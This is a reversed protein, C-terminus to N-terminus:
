AIEAEFPLILLFAATYKSPLASEDAGADDSRAKWVNPNKTIFDTHFLIKAPM